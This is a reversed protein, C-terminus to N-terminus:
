ASEAHIGCVAVVMCRGDLTNRATRVNVRGRRQRSEPANVLPGSCRGAPLWCRRKSGLRTDCRSSTASESLLQHATMDGHWM